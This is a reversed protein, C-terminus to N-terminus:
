RRNLSRAYAGRHHRQCFQRYRRADAAASPEELRRSRRQDRRNEGRERAKGVELADVERGGQVADGEEVPVPEREPVALPIAAM